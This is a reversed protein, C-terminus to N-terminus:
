GDLIGCCGCFRERLWFISGEHGLGIQIGQGRQEFVAERSPIRQRRSQTPLRTVRLMIIIHNPLKLLRRLPIPQPSQPLFNLPQKPKRSKLNIKNKHHVVIHVLISPLPNHEIISIQVYVATNQCIPSTNGVIYLRLWIRLIQVKHETRLGMYVVDLIYLLHLLSFVREVTRKLVHLCLFLRPIDIM